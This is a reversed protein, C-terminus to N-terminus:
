QAASIDMHGLPMRPLRLGSCQHLVALWWNSSFGTFGTAPMLVKKSRRSTSQGRCGMNKHDGAILHLSLRQHRLSRHHERRYMPAGASFFIAAQAIALRRPEAAMKPEAV